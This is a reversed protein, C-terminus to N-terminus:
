GLSNTVCDGTYFAAVQELGRAELAATLRRDRGYVDPRFHVTGDPAAVATWYHAYVAIPMPMPLTKTEGSAIAANLARDDFLGLGSLALAALPLIEEVRICGHSLTRESRAFSAKGPTDHLYVDFSNAMDLKAVGLPNRPGPVQRIRYPFTGARIRRWDVSRGHPDGAPGDLLIMENKQLYASDRKLKPLIENRAISNPVNWPPNVLVGTATAHFMPTPTHAAGVIVKSTLLIENAELLALSADAVNVMIRRKELKRPMWRWREMNAIIQEVREMASINLMALTKPGPRGDAELGNNRQYRKLAGILDPDSAAANDEMALRRRLLDHEPTAAKELDIGAPIKPWGGRAAIGRYTALGTRLAAYEAQPPALEALFTGIGDQELAAALATAPDFPERPLRADGYVEAPALRGSRLDQAYRLLTATLRLEYGARQEVSPRVPLPETAYDSPDLGDADAGALAREVERVASTDNLWAPEYRRLAYFAQVRRGTQPDLTMAAFGSDSLLEPVSVFFGPILFPRAALRAAPSVMSLAFFIALLLFLLFWFWFSRRAQALAAAM